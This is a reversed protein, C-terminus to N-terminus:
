RQDYRRALQQATAEDLGVIALSDETHQWAPDGGVAPWLALNPLARLDDTLQRQRLRNEDDNLARGPNHATMIHIPGRGPAPYRGHTEGAPAPAVIFSGHSPHEIRVHTVTYALWRKDASHSIVITDGM